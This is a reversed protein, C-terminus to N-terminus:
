VFANGREDVKQENRLIGKEKYRSLVFHTATSLVSDLTALRQSVFLAIDKFTRGTVTLSLDYAGSMLNVDQVEDYQAIIDAIEDFGHDRKPSVKLEIQAEVFNGDMKDHNIIATYGCIVGEQELQRIQQDVVAPTIELMVAMEENTYRCNEQLLKIIENM